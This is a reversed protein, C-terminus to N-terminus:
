NVGIEPLASPLLRTSLRIVEAVISEGNGTVMVEGDSSLAKRKVRVEDALGDDGERVEGATGSGGFNAASM